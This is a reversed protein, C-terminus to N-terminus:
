CRWPCASAARSCRSNRRRFSAGRLAAFPAIAASVRCERRFPNRAKVDVGDADGGFAHVPQARRIPGYEDDRVILAKQVVDHGVFHVDHRAPLDKVRAPLLKGELKFLGAIRCVARCRSLSHRHRDMLGCDPRRRCRCFLAEEIEVHVNGTLKRARTRSSDAGPSVGREIGENHEAHGVAADLFPFVGVQAREHRLDM